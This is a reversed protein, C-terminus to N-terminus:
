KRFCKGYTWTMNKNTKVKGSVWSGSNFSQYITAETQKDFRSHNQLLGGFNHYRNVYLGDSSAFMIEGTAGYARRHFKSAFVALINLLDM